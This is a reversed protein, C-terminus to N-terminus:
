GVDSSNALWLDLQPFRSDLHQTLWPLAEQLRADPGRLTYRGELLHPLVRSLRALVDPHDAVLVSDDDQMVAALGHDNCPVFFTDTVVAEAFLGVFQLAFILFVGNRPSLQAPTPPLGESVEDGFRELLARAAPYRDIWDGACRGQACDRAVDVLADHVIYGHGQHEAWVFTSKPLDMHWLMPLLARWAPSEKAAAAPFQGQDNLLVAQETLHHQLDAVITADLGTLEAAVCAGHATTFQGASVASYCVSRFYMPHDPDIAQAHQLAKLALPHQGALSSADALMSWSLLNDPEQRTWHRAETVARKLDSSMWAAFVKEKFFSM